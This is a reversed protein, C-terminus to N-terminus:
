TSDQAGLEDIVQLLLQRYGGVGGIGGPVGIHPAAGFPEGEMQM